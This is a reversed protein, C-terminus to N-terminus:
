WTPAATRRSFTPSRNVHDLERLLHAEQEFLSRATAQEAKDQTQPRLEKLAWLNGSGPPLEEVQYVWAMGGGGVLRVIRYQNRLVTGIALPQTMSGM